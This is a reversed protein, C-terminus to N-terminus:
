AEGVALKFDEADLVRSFLSLILYSNPFLLYSYIHRAKRPPNFLM